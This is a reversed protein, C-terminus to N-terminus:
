KRRNNPIALISISQFMFVILWNILNELQSFRLIYQSKSEQQIENSVKKTVSEARTYNQTPTFTSLLSKLLSNVQVCCFWRSLARKVRWQCVRRIFDKLTVMWICVKLLVKRHHQYNEWYVNKKKKCFAVIEELKISKGISCNTKEFYVKKKQLIYFNRGTQNRRGQFYFPQYIVNTKIYSLDLLAAPVKWHKFRM